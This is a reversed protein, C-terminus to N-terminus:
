FPDPGCTAPRDGPPPTDDVVPDALLRELRWARASLAAWEPHGPRVAMDAREAIAPHDEVARNGATCSVVVNAPNTYAGGSSRKRRHHLEGGTGACVLVLPHIPLGEAVMAAAAAHMPGCVACPGPILKARLAEYEDNEAIRRPSQAPLTM